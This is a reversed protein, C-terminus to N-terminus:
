SVEESDILFIGSQSLIHCILTDSQFRCLIGIQVCSLYTSYISKQFLVCILRSFCESIYSIFLFVLILYLHLRLSFTSVGAGICTSVIVDCGLLVETVCKEEVSQFRKKMNGLQRQVDGYEQGGNGAQTLATYNYSASEVSTYLFFLSLSLTTTLYSFLTFDPQLSIQLVIISTSLAPLPQLVTQNM